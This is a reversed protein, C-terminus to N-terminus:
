KSMVHTTMAVVDLTDHSFSYLHCRFLYTSLVNTLASKLYIRDFMCPVDYLMFNCVYHDNVLTAYQFIM